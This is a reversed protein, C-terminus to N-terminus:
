KNAEVYVVLRDTMISLWRSYPLLTLLGAIRFAGRAKLTHRNRTVTEGRHLANRYECGTLIILGDPSMIEKM